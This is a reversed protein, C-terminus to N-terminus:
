LKELDLEGGVLYSRSSIMLWILYGFIFCAILFARGAISATTILRDKAIAAIDTGATIM